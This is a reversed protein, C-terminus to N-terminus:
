VPNGEGAPQRGPPNTETADPVAPTGAKRTVVPKGNTPVRTLRLRFRDLGVQMTLQKDMGPEDQIAEIMEEVKELFPKLAEILQPIWPGDDGLGNPQIGLSVPANPLIFDRGTKPDFLEIGVEIADATEVVDNLVFQFVRRPLDIQLLQLVKSTFTTSGLIIPPNNRLV